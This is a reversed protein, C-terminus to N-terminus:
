PEPGYERANWRQRALEMACPGNCMPQPPAPLRRDGLWHNLQANAKARATLVPFWGSISDVDLSCRLEFRSV